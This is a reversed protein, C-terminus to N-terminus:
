GAQEKRHDEDKAQRVTALAIARAARATTRPMYTKLIRQTEDIDHGTIGTILHADLGLEGLYVVCTRRLDRYEIGALEEALDPDEEGLATAVAWERVEAFDRQFRTQGAKGHYTAAVATGDTATPQRTDDLLITTAGRATATEINSEIAWRVLGTVPVEVWANTKLQRVRIGRVIGDPAMAQLTRWDEPQMSHEPMVVYQRRTMALYDQERQGAAFGLMIALAMSPMGMDYSAFIMAERAQRSWVVHRPPPAALNFDTFPNSGKGIIDESEAFAFVQRGQKLCQHAAHHGVGTKPDMLAKRLNKVRLPTIYAIPYEGAWAALRKMSTRYTRATSRAIIHNGAADKGDIVEREYRALLHAFTGTAERKKVERPKAGGSKWDDVQANRTRAATIAAGEDKGLTLPKWGAKALTASPQWYWSTIGAKNTKSVLCPIRIQAM